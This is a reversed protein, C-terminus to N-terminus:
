PVRLNVLANVPRWGSGCAVLGGWGVGYIVKRDVDLDELYNRGKLTESCFPTYLERRGNPSCARAM